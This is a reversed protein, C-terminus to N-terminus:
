DVFYNLFSPTNVKIISKKNQQSVMNRSKKYVEKAKNIEYEEDDSSEEIIYTKKKPKKKKKVIIIESEAESEDTTVDVPEQIVKKIETPKVDDKKVYGNDLLLKSAELKKNDEKLKINAQRKVRANEFQALQAPTRAKKPKTEKAIPITEIVKKIPKELPVEEEVNEKIINDSM